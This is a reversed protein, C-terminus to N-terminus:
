KFNYGAIIIYTFKRKFFFGYFNLVQLMGQVFCFTLKLIIMSITMNRFTNFKKKIKKNQIIFHFTKKGNNIIENSAELFINKLNVKKEYM